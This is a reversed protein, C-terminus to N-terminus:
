RGHLEIEPLIIIVYPGDFVARLSLVAQGHHLYSPPGLAQGARRVTGQYANCFTSRWRAQSPAM